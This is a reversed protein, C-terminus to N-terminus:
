WAPISIGTGIGSICSIALREPGVDSFLVSEASAMATVRVPVIPNGVTAITLTRMHILTEDTTTTPTTTRYHYALLWCLEQDYSTNSPRSWLMVAAWPAARPESQPASLLTPSGLM